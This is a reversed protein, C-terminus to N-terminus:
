GLTRFDVTLDPELYAFSVPLDFRRPGVSGPNVYRVGDRTESHPRHTHGFLVLGIGAAAPELDLDDLNHLLHLRTGFLEITETEPLSRAWAGFDVNGRVAVDPAIRELEPLIEASGLDGMHLIREVGSLEEVLEPRLLGHTDSILAVRTM